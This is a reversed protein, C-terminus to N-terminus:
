AIARSRSAVLFRPPLPCMTCSRFCGCGLCCRTPRLRATRSRAWSKPPDQGSLENSCAVVTKGALRRIEFRPDALSGETEVTARAIASAMRQHALTAVADSSLTDAAPRLLM